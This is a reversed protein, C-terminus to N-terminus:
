SHLPLVYFQMSRLTSAFSCSLLPLPKPIRGGQQECLNTFSHLSIYDVCFQSPSSQNCNWEVDIHFFTKQMTLHNLGYCTKQMTLHHLANQSPPLTASKKTPGYFSKIFMILDIKSLVNVHGKVVRDIPQTYTWGLNQLYILISINSLSLSLSLSLM